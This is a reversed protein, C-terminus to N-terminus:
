DGVFASQRRQALDVGRRRAIGVLLARVLRYRDDDVLGARTSATAVLGILIVAAAAVILTIEYEHGHPLFYPFSRPDHGSLGALLGNILYALAGAAALPTFLG